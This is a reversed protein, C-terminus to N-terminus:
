DIEQMETLASYNINRARFRAKIISPRPAEIPLTTRIRIPKQTRTRSRPILHQLKHTPILIPIQANDHLKNRQIVRPRIRSSTHIKSISSTPFSLALPALKSDHFQLSCFILRKYANHHKRGNQANARSLGFLNLILRHSLRLRQPLHFVTHVAAGLVKGLKPKRWTHAVKLCGEWEIAPSLV